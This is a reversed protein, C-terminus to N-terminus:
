RMRKIGTSELATYNEFNMRQTSYHTSMISGNYYGKNNCLMKFCLTLLKEGICFYKRFKYSASTLKMDM